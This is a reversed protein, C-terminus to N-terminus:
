SRKPKRCMNTGGVTKMEYDGQCGCVTNKTPTCQEKVVKRGGSCKDCSFCNEYYNHTASYTSGAVCAECVTPSDKTCVSKFKTGPQCKQCCKQLETEYYETEGCSSHRTPKAQVALYCLGLGLIVLLKM